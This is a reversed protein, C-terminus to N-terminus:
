CQNATKIEHIIGVVKGYFKPSFFLFEVHLKSKKLILLFRTENPKM